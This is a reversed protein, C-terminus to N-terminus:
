DFGGVRSRSLDEFREKVYVDLRMSTNLSYIFKSM